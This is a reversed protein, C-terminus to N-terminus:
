TKLILWLLRYIRTYAHRFCETILVYKKLWVIWIFERRIWLILSVYLCLCCGRWSLNHIAPCICNAKMGSFFLMARIWRVPEKRSQTHFMWISLSLCKYLRYIEFCIGSLLSSVPSGIVYPCISTSFPSLPLKNQKKVWLVSTMEAWM